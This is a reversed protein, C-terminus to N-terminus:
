GFRENLTAYDIRFRVLDSMRFEFIRGPARMLGLSRFSVRKSYDGREGLNASVYNSFTAGLDDSWRIELKPTVDYSPSWGSNVYVLVENASVGNAPVPLYGSVERIVPLTEDGVGEELFYIKDSERDGCLVLSGKQVSNVPVWYDKLYTDWKSWIQMTIDYVLTFTGSTVLLFDHRNFRFVWCSIDDATKLIEEVSENSIKQTQGQGMVVTKADTVWLIAPLGNVVASVSSENSHCGERYVRGPVRQFPADSDGTPAWVEPGSTGLFWVEDSAIRCSIIPDPIREASAFDLPDITTEDPRIFFFKQSGTITVIFYGNLTAVSNASLGDPIDVVSLVTGDYHYLVGDRTIFVTDAEATTKTGAVDVYGNGPLDGLKTSTKTAIDVRFVEEGSVVMVDGNLINPQYWMQTVPGSGVQTFLGLTPRSVRSRGDPSSVNPVVYMNRLKLRSVDQTKSEWDGLGLPIDVM